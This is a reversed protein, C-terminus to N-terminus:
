DRCSKFSNDQIELLIRNSLLSADFYSINIDKKQKVQSIFFEFSKKLSNAYDKKIDVTEEKVVPPTTFRGEKDFTDRPFHLSIKGDRIRLFGETGIILIDKICPCAYSSFISATLSDFSLCIQSTDYANGRKAVISPNYSYGRIKGFLLILLDVYHIAVNETIAHLNEKGDSRWSSVYEEKFALGQTNIIAIHIIEGIKKKFSENTLIDSLFGFRFNYNFYIRSKDQKSLSELKKIHELNTVPPKECFIYGKFNKLIEIVYDFHTTNPSAIIVADCEYLDSIKNTGVAADIKKSPHYICEIKCDKHEEVIKKLKLAHNRYGIIGIKLKM